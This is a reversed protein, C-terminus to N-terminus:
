RLLNYFHIKIQRCLFHENAIFAFIMDVICRNMRNKGSELVKLAENASVVKPQRDLPQTLSASYTFYNKRTSRINNLIIRPISMKLLNAM